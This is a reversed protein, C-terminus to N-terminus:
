HGPPPAGLETWAPPEFTRGPMGGLAIYRFGKPGPVLQRLQEIGVRAWVGPELEHREGDLVLTASGALPIYVEEQGPDGDGGEGHHHNPYRDFGPPLDFIQMGWSTVGLEARARTCLGDYFTEMEDVRKVTADPMTM